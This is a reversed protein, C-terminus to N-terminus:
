ESDTQTDDEENENENLSEDVENMQFDTLPQRGMSNVWPESMEEDPLAALGCLERQENPSIAILQNTWTAVDKVDEQLEPYASM